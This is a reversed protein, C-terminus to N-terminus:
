EKAQLEIEGFTMFVLTPGSPGRYAGNAGCLRAALAAMQWGDMEEGSWLGVTLRAIGHEEGYARVRASDTTLEEAISSNAWGWMWTGSKTNFTGIIQVPATAIKDDFTFVLTGLDQDVDWSDAESMHWTQQHAEMQLRLIEMSGELLEEFETTEGARNEADERDFLEYETSM